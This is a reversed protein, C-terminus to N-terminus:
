QVLVVKRSDALGAAEIRCFYVGHACPNGLGDTGDWVVHGSAGARLTADLLTRVLRGTISYVRIRVSGTEGVSYRVATELRMPNPAAPALGTCGPSESGRTGPFGSGPGTSEHWSGGRTLRSGGDDALWASGGGCVRHARGDSIWEPFPITDALAGVPFGDPLDPILPLSVNTSVAGCGAALVAVGELLVGAGLATLPTPRM